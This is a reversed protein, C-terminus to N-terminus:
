GQGEDNFTFRVSLGLWDTWGPDRDLALLRLRIDAAILPFTIQLRDDSWLLKGPRRVLDHLRRRATRRLWRDLAQRWLGAWQPCPEEPDLRPLGSLAPDDAACGHHRAIATILQAGPHEGLLEPREQLWRRFGIDAVAPVALWVGAHNSRLARGVMLDPAVLQDREDPVYQHGPGTAPDALAAPSSESQTNTVFPKSKVRGKGERASRSTATRVSQSTELKIPFKQTAVIAVPSLLWVETRAVIEALLLPRMALAPSARLVQARLVARIAAASQSSAQVARLADLVSIPVQRLVETAVAEALDAQGPGASSAGPDAAEQMIAAVTASGIQASVQLAAILQNIAGCNACCAILRILKAECGPLIAASVLDPLWDDVPRSRWTPVALRWFWGVPTCGRLMLDLLVAEAEAESAFWVCNAAPAGSESGHRSGETALEWASRLAQQRHGSRPASGGASIAMRRILVLRDDDPIECQLADELRMRPATSRQAPCAMALLSVEVRAM